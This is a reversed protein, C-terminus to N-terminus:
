SAYNDPGAQRKLQINSLHKKVTDISIYLRVAIEKRSLNARRLQWVDAERPTMHFKKAEAIALSVLSQQQDELRVLLCPEAFAETEMWQVRIRYNGLTEELVLPRDGYLERSEVLAQCTNWVEAPLPPKTGTVGPFQHCIQGAMSNAYIVQGQPDLLLVGDVLCELVSLLLRPLSKPPQNANPNANPNADPNPNLNESSNM